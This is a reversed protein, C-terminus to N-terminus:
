RHSVPTRTVEFWVAKGFGLPEVGWSSSLAEVIQLGRGSTDQDTSDRAVPMRDSQDIVAVHILRDTLELTLELETATHILANTVLESVCLGVPDVLEDVGWDHMVDAAFRRAVGASSATSALHRRVSKNSDARSSISSPLYQLVLVAMDDERDPVEAISRLVEDAVDDPSWKRPAELARTELFNNVARHLRDMGATVSMSRTEILGDTYLLVCDSPKLFITSQEFNLDPDTGLPPDTVIDAYVAGQSDVILPPPHGARTVSAIGDELDLELYCCTALVGPETGCLLRNTAEMVRAPSHGEWAYSRIANRLQGMVQAADLNHGGVDGIVVALRNAPLQIVDYWDGGVEVGHAGPVYRHSTRAGAVAPLQEPLLTRQLAQSIFREREYARARDLAQSVQSALTLLIILEGEEFARPEPWALVWAGLMGQPSSLPLSALAKTGTLDAVPLMDPYQDIAEPDPLLVVNGTEITETIATRRNPIDTPPSRDPDYGHLLMQDVRGDEGLLAVAGRPAGVVASGEHMIVSCVQDVTVAESLAATVRQMRIAQEGARTQRRALRSREDELAQRETIDIQIGVVERARAGERRIQGKCLLWRAPKGKAASVRFTFEFIDAGVIAEEIMQRASMVDDSHVANFFADPSAPELPDLGLLVANTASWRMQDADLDWFWLGMHTADLALRLQSESRSRAEDARHRETVDIMVLGVGSAFDDSRGSEVPYYRVLWFSASDNPDDAPVSFTSEADSAKGANIRAILDVDLDVLREKVQEPKWGAIEDNTAHCLAAFTDNTRQLCLQRDFFAIAVPSAKLVASLLAASDDHSCSAGEAQTATHNSETGSNGPEIPQLAIGESPGEMSRGRLTGAQSKEVHRHGTRARSCM